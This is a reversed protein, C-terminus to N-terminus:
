SNNKLVLTVINLDKPRYKLTFLNSNLKKVKKM